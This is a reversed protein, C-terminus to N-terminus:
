GAGRAAANARAVHALPKPRTLVQIDELQRVNANPQLSITAAASDIGTIRGIPIDPPFESSGHGTTGATVVLDGPAVSTSSPFELLLQSTSGAAPEVIGWTGTRADRAAVASSADTLLTVEAADSAVTSVRGVLGDGDIVVDGVHVGAGSGANIMVHSYWVSPSEDAIQATVQQYSSVGLQDDLTFLKRLQLYQRRDAQLASNEALLRQNEAHYRNREGVANVVDDIDNVVDRVPTLLTSVGDQIPAFIDLFGSQISGLPGGSSSGLSASLLIVSLTVLLALM